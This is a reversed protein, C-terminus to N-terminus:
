RPRRSRRLKDLHPRTAAVAAIASTIQTKLDNEVQRRCADDAEERTVLEDIEKANHRQHQEDCGIHNMRGRHDGHPAEERCDQTQEYVDVQSVAAHASEGRWSSLLYRIDSSSIVAPVISFRACHM